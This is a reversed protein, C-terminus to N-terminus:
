LLLFINELSSHLPLPSPSKSSPVHSHKTFQIVILNKTHKIGHYFMLTIEELPCTAAHLLVLGGGLDGDVRAGKLTMRALELVQVGLDVGLGDGGGAGVEGVM